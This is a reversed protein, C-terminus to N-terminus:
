RRSHRGSGSCRRGRRAVLAHAARQLGPMGAVDVPPLVHPRLPELLRQDIQAGGDADIGLAPRLEVVHLHGVVSPADEQRGRDLLRLMGNPACLPSGAHCSTGPSYRAMSRRSITVWPSVSGAETSCCRWRPAVAGTARRGACGTGPSRRPPGGDRPSPRGAACINRGRRARPPPPAAAAGSRRGAVLRAHEAREVLRRGVPEGEEHEGDEGVAVALHLEGRERLRAEVRERAGAAEHQGLFRVVHEHALGADDRMM